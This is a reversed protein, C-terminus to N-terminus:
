VSEANLYFIPEDKEEVEYVFSREQTEFEFDKVKDIYNDTLRLFEIVAKYAIDKRKFAPLVRLELTNRGNTHYCYNLQCYRDADDKRTYFLQCDPNFRKHCYDSGELRNWFQRSTIKNKEGWRKLGNLIYDWYPKNTLRSYDSMSNLSIHVHLGCTTNTNEWKRSFESYTRFDPYYKYMWKKLDSIRRYPTSVIEGIWSDGKACECDNSRHEHCLWKVSGDGHTNTRPKLHWLGEIEVGVRNINRM